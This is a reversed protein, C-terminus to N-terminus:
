QLTYGFGLITFKKAADTMRVEVQHEKAEEGTYVIYANCHNWGIELANITRTVEGDVLVEATGFTHDGSDKYVIM